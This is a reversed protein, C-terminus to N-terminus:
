DGGVGGDCFVGSVVDFTDKEWCHGGDNSIRLFLSGNGFLEIRGQNLKELKMVARYFKIEDPALEFEEGCQTKVTM